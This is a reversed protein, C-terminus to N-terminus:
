LSIESCPLAAVADVGAAAAAAASAACGAAANPDFAILVSM